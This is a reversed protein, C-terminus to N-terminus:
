YNENDSGPSVWSYLAGGVSIIGYSKGGFTAPNEPNFGGWVNHRTYASATGEVRGYGLSVRGSSNTGGFGGGDGWSTYQHGNDAWTMPWNDSGPALSIHSGLNFSICLNTSAPYPAGATPSGWTAADVQPLLVGMLLVWLTMRLVRRM